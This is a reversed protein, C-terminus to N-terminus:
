DELNQLKGSFIKGRSSVKLPVKLCGLVVQALFFKARIGLERM